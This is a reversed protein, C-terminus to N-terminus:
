GENRTDDVGGPSSVLDPQDMSTKLKLADAYTEPFAIQDHPTSVYRPPSEPACLQADSKLWFTKGEDTSFADPDRRSRWCVTDGGDNPLPRWEAPHDTLVSLPKGRLLLHLYEVAFGRALPDFHQEQFAAVVKLIPVILDPDEHLRSLEARSHEILDM